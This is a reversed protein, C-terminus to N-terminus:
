RRYMARWFRLEDPTIDPHIIDHLLIVRNETSENWADHEYSHDFWLCRGEQWTREEGAVRLACRPPVKIGLHCTLTTNPGDAHPRLRAGPAMNHFAVEGAPALHPMLRDMIECTKPLLARAREGFQGGRWVQFYGWDM